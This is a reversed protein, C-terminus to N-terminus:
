RLLIVSGTKKIHEDKFTIYDILYTYSDVEQDLNNYKGDWAANVDTTEFVIKGWRNFLKFYNFTKLGAGHEIRLYDNLGDNNPTFALPIAVVVDNSVVIHYIDAIQCSSVTDTRTLTYDTTKIGRFVPYPILTNNLNTNPYWSYQTYGSDVKINTLLTDIDSLVFM